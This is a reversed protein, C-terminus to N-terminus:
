ATAHPLESTKPDVRARTSCGLRGTAKQRLGGNQAAEKSNMQAM